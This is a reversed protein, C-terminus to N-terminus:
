QSTVRVVLAYDAYVLPGPCRGRPHDATITAQGPAAARFTATWGGTGDGAESVVPLVDSANTRPPEFYGNYAKLTLDIDTGVPVVVTGHTEGSVPLRGNVIPSQTMSTQEGSAYSILVPAPGLNVVHPCSTLRDHVFWAPILLLALCLSGILVRRTM